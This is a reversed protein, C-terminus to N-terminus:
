DVTVQFTVTASAGAVVDGSNLVSTPDNVNMGAILPSNGVVDAAGAAANNLTTSAAVYTTFAPISDSFAVGALATAAPAKAVIAYELIDGSEAKVNGGTSFFANGNITIPATGNPNSVNRVYKNFAVEAVTTLTQDTTDEGPDAQSTATVDMTVTSPAGTISGVDPITAIFTQYEAILSGVAIAAVLPSTLTISATTGDDAVSSVTYNQGNITVTDGAVINNVNTNAVGDSPVSIVSTGLPYASTSATAGLTVSTIPIAGQTFVANASTSALGAPTLSSSLNYIDSGNANSTITYVYAVSQNEATTQDAPASLSPASATLSVTVSVSAEIPSSLGTYNLQATNKLQTNAPTVANAASPLIVALAFLASLIKNKIKM